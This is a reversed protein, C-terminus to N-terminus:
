RFDSTAILYSLSILLISAALVSSCIFREFLNNVTFVTYISALTLPLPWFVGIVIFFINIRNGVGVSRQM